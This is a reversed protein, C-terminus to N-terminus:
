RTHIHTYIHVDIYIILNIHNKELNKSKSQLRVTPLKVAILPSTLLFTVFSLRIFFPHM